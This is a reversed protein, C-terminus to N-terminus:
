KPCNFNEDDVLRKVRIMTDKYDLLFEAYMESNEVSLNRQCGDYKVVCGVRLCRTKELSENFIRGMVNLSVVGSEEHCSRLGLIYQETEDIASSLIPYKEKNCTVASKMDFLLRYVLSYTDERNRNLGLEEKVITDLYNMKNKYVKFGNRYKENEDHILATVEKTYESILSSDIFLDPDKVYRRIVEKIKKYTEAKQDDYKVEWFSSLSENVEETISLLEKENNISLMKNHENTDIERAQEDLLRTLGEKDRVILSGRDNFNMYRSSIFKAERYTFLSPNLLYADIAVKRKSYWGFHSVMSLKMAIWESLAVFCIIAITMTIAIVPTFSFGIKTFDSHLMVGYAVAMAYAFVLPLVISLPGADSYWMSVASDVYSFFHGDVRDQNKFTWKMKAMDKSRMSRIMIHESCTPILVNLSLIFLSILLLAARKSVTKVLFFAFMGIAVFLFDHILYAYRGRRSEKDGEMMRYAKAVIKLEEEDYNLM